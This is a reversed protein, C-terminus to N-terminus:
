MRENTSIQLQFFYPFALCYMSWHYLPNNSYHMEVLDIDWPDNSGDCGSGVCRVGLKNGSVDYSDDTVATNWAQDCNPDTQFIQWIDRDVEFEGLVMWKGHYMDFDAIVAFSFSFLAIFTSCKM